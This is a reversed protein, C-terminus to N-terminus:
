AAQGVLQSRNREKEEDQENKTKKKNQTTPPGARYVSM